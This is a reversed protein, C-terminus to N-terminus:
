ARDLWALLTLLRTTTPGDIQVKAEYSPGHGLDASAWLLRSEGPGCALSASADSGLHWELLVASDSYLYGGRPNRGVLLGYISPAPMGRAMAGVLWGLLWRHAQPTLPYGDAVLHHLRAVAKAPTRTPPTYTM